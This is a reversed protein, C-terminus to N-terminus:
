IIHKTKCIDKKQLIDVKLEVFWVGAAKQLFTQYRQSNGKILDGDFDVKANRKDKEFLVDRVKDKVEDISYVEKRILDEHNSKNMAVDEKNKNDCGNCQGSAIRGKVFELSKGM